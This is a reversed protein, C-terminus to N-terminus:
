TGENGVIEQFTKPRFKEIWPVNRPKKSVSPSAM